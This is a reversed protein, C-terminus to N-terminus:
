LPVPGRHEGDAHESFYYFIRREALAATLLPGPLTRLYRKLVCTVVHPDSSEELARHGGQQLQHLTSAIEAEAGQERLIGFKEARKKKPRESCASPSQRPGTGSQLHGFVRRM